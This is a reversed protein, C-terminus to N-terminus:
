EIITLYQKFSYTICVWDFSSQFWSLFLRVNITNRVVNADLSLANTVHLMSLLDIMILIYVYLYHRLENIIMSVQGVRNCVQLWNARPWHWRLWWMADPYCLMPNNTVLWWWYLIKIGLEKALFYRFDWLWYWLTKETNSESSGLVYNLKCKSYVLFVYYDGNFIMWVVCCNKPTATPFFKNQISFSNM